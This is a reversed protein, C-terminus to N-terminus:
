AGPGGGVLRIAEEFEAILGLLADREDRCHSVRGELELDREALDREAAALSAEVDGVRRHLRELEEYLSEAPGRV